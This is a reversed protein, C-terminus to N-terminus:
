SSIFAMVGQHRGGEALRDLAEGAVQRLKVGGEGALRLLEEIRRDRRKEDVLVELLREPRQLASSVAHLGFIWGSERSM